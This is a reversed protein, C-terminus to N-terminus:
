CAQVRTKVRPASTAMASCSRRHRFRAAQNTHQPPHLHFINEPKLDRHVIGAEHAAELAHSVEILCRASEPCPSTAQTRHTVERADRRELLEMVLYPRGSHLPASAPVRRRHETTSRHRRVARAEKYSGASRPPREERPHLCFKIAVRKGIMAHHRASLGRRQWRRRDRWRHPLRWGGDRAGSESPQARAESELTAVGM